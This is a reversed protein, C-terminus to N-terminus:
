CEGKSPDGLSGSRLTVALLGIEAETLAIEYRQKSNRTYIDDAIISITVTNECVQLEETQLPESYIRKPSGPKRGPRVNLRM